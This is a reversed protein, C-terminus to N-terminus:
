LLGVPIKGAAQAQGALIAALSKLSAQRYSYTCIFSDATPFSSYDYPNRLAVVIFAKKLSGLATGLLQQEPTLHANYSCFIVLDFDKAKDILAQRQSEEPKLSYYVETCEIGYDRLLPGLTESKQVDEVQVLGAIEPFLVLTKRKGDPLIPLNNNKLVTVSKLAAELSLQWNQHWLIHPYKILGKKLKTIRTLADDLRSESIRGSECASLLANYAELQAEKTHCVLVIDAGAEVAMVAAEGIGFHKAIAGMELDDTIVVGEFGLEEKLLGTLVPQSLTAPLGPTPDFAPFTVHATMIAGVNAAIAEIFPKLEVEKLRNKDHAVTPLDIHSDIAIDGKGPFHKATAWAWNQHGEIFARGLIAVQNPDEGFSRVGIGPNHPNNNVDLVPALNLNIGLYKLEAGTAEGVIKTLQADNAAGLAMNGPFVTAQTFRVVVGGEQDAAILLPEKAISQLKTTLRRVQDLSEVNRAFLIVGGLHCDRLLSETDVDVKTGHFGVMLLQGVKERLLM